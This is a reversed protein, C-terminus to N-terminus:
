IIWVSRAEGVVWGGGAMSARVRKEAARRASDAAAAGALASL